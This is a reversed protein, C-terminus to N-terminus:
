RWTFFNRLAEIEARMRSEPWDLARQMVAAYGAALEDGPYGAAGLGARRVLADTLTLAMEDTIATVVPTASDKDTLAAGPLVTTATM